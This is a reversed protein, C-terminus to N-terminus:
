NGSRHSPLFIYDLTFLELEQRHRRGWSSGAGGRRKGPKSDRKCHSELEHSKLYLGCQGAVWEATWCCARNVCSTRFSIGGRIPIILTAM